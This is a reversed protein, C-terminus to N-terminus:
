KEKLTSKAKDRVKQDKFPSGCESQEKLRCEKHCASGSRNFFAKRIPAIQGCYRCSALVFKLSSPGYKDPHYGYHKITEDILIQSPFNHIKREM